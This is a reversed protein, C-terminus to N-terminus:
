YWYKYVLVLVRCRTGTRSTSKLRVVYPLAPLDRNAIRSKQINLKGTINECPEEYLVKYRIYHISSSRYIISCLIVNPISIEKITNIDVTEGVINAKAVFDDMTLMWDGLLNIGNFSRPPLTEEGVVTVVAFTKDGFLLLLVFLRTVGFIHKGDDDNVVVVVVLCVTGGCSKVLRPLRLLRMLRLTADSNCDTAIGEDLESDDIDDDM